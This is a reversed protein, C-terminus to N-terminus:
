APAGGEPEPNWAALKRALTNRVITLRYRVTGEPMELVEAIEAGSMQLYYRMLVIRRDTEELAAIANAADMRLASTAELNASGSINEASWATERTERSQRSRWDDVIVGAATRVLWARRAIPELTALTERHRWARFFTEQVVDDAFEQDARRSLATAYVLRLHERYFQEFDDM